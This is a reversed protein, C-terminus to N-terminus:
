NRRDRELVIPTARLADAIELALHHKEVDPRRPAAWASFFHRRQVAQLRQEATGIKLHDRERDVAVPDIGDALEIGLDTDAVQRDM